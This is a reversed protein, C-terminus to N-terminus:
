ENDEELGTEIVDTLEDTELSALAEIMEDQGLNGKVSTESAISQLERYDLESLQERATAHDNTSEDDQGSKLDSDESHKVTMTDSISDDKVFKNTMGCSNCGRTKEEFPEVGGVFTIENVHSCEEGRYRVVTSDTM